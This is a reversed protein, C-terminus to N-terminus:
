DIVTLSKLDTAAM